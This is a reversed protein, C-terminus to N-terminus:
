QCVTHTLPLHNVSAQNTIKPEKLSVINFFWILLMVHSEDFKRGHSIPNVLEVLFPKIKGKISFSFSFSLTQNQSHLSPINYKTTELSPFCTIQYGCVVDEILGVLTKYSNLLSPYLFTIVLDHVVRKLFLNNMARPENM